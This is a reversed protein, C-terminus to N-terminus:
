KTLEVVTLPEAGPFLPGPVPPDAGLTSRQRWECACVHIYVSAHM